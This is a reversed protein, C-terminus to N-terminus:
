DAARPPRPSTEVVVVQGALRRSVAPAGRVMMTGVIVWATGLPILWLARGDETNFGLALLAGVGVLLYAPGLRSTGILGFLLTGIVAGFFGVLLIPWPLVLGIAGLTIAAASGWLAVSRDAMLRIIMVAALGTLAAATAGVLFASGSDKYGLDNIYPAGYFGISALTWLVGGITAVFGALRLGGFSGAPEPPDHRRQPHLRADIAGRIIDLRDLVDPPREDLLARLEIEYRERWAAPYLRVLRTM